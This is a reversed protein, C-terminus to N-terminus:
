NCFECLTMDWRMVSHFAFVTPFSFWHSASLQHMFNFLCKLKKQYHLFLTSINRVLGEMHELQNHHLSVRFSFTPPTQCRAPNRVPHLGAFCICWFFMWTLVAFASEWSLNWTAIMNESYINTFCLPSSTYIWFTLMHIQQLLKNLIDEQGAAPM